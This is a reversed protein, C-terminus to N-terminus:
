QQILTVSSAALIRYIFAHSDNWYKDCANNVNSFVALVDIDDLPRIITNKSASRMLIGRAHPMDSAPPFKTALKEDVSKMRGPIFSTRQNETATIEQLFTDFAQRTTLPM